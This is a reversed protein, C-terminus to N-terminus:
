KISKEIARELNHQLRKKLNEQITKTINESVEKNSIMQPVSVIRISEFAEEGAHIGKQVRSGTKQFPLYNGGTLSTKSIFPIGKSNMKEKHGKRVEISMNVKKRTPMYAWGRSGKALVRANTFAPPKTLNKGFRSVTLTRGTYYIKINLPDSDDIRLKVLDTSKSIDKAKINYEKAVEKAIWSPGRKKFESLTRKEAKKIDKEMNKLNGTISDFDTRISLMGSNKGM